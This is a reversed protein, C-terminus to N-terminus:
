QTAALEVEGQYDSGTLGALITEPAHPTLLPWTATDVELQISDNHTM